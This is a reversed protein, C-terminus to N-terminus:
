VVASPVSSALVKPLTLAWSALMLLALADTLLLAMVEVAMALVAPLLKDTAPVLADPRPVAAVNMWDPLVTVASM